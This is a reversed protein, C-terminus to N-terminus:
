RSIYKYSPVQFILFVDTGHGDKEITQKPHIRMEQRELRKWGLQEAVGEVFPSGQLKASGDWVRILVYGGPRVVRHMELLNLVSYGEHHTWSTHIADFTSESFPYFSMYDFAVTPFGRAANLQHFPPVSGGSSTEGPMILNACVTIIKEGFQRYNRMALSGTASGIDLVLRVDELRFVSAELALSSHAGSQWTKHDAQELYGDTFFKCYIHGREGHEAHFVRSTNQGLACARFDSGYPMSSWDIRKHDMREPWPAPRWNLDIKAAPKLIPKRIPVLLERKSAHDLSMPLHHQYGKQFVAYVASRAWPTLACELYRKCGAVDQVAQIVPGGGKGRKSFGPLQTPVPPPRPPLPPLPPSPPEHHRPAKNSPPSHTAATCPEDRGSRLLTFALGCSLLVNLALSAHLPQM